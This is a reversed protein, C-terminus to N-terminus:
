RGLLACCPPAIDGGRFDLRPSLSREVRAVLEASGFAIERRCATLEILQETQRGFKGQMDGRQCERGHRRPNGRQCHLCKLTPKIERCQAATIVYGFGVDV